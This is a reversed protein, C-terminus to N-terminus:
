FKGKERTETFYYGARSHYLMVAGVPRVMICLKHSNSFPILCKLQITILVVTVIRKCVNLYTVPLKLVCVSAASM